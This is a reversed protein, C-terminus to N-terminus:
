NNYLEPTVALKIVFEGNKDFYIYDMTINNDRYVKLDPSTKVNEIISPRIYKNVTDLNVESKDLNMITYYYMLNTAGKSSASDLRTFEDVQMPTQKNLQIAVNNLETELDPAFFQRGIIYFVGFSIVGVVSSLIKSKKSQEKKM